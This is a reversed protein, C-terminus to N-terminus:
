QASVQSGAISSAGADWISWGREQGAGLYRGNPSFELDWVYGRNPKLNLLELGTAADYIAVRGEGGAAIRGGDPSSAVCQVVAGGFDIRRLEHGRDHNLISIAGNTCGCIVTRGDLSFSVCSVFARGVSTRWILQGSSLERLEVIEGAACALQDDYPGFCARPYSGRPFEFEHLLELDAIRWVKVRSDMGSTAVLEGNPSVVVRLTGGDHDSRRRGKREREHLDFLGLNMGNWYAVIGTGLNASAIRRGGSGDAQVAKWGRGGPAEPNRLDTGFEDLHVESCASRDGEDGPPPPLPCDCFECRLVSDGSAMSRLYVYRNSHVTAFIEGDAGFSLDDVESESDSYREGLAAAERAERRWFKIEGSSDISVVQNGGYASAAVIGHRHGHFSSLLGGTEVQWTRLFTDEGGSLVGSDNDVFALCNVATSHGSIDIGRAEPM